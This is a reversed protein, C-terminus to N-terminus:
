VSRATRDFSHREDNSREECAHGSLTAMMSKEEQIAALGDPSTLTAYGELEEVTWNTPIPVTFLGDPHRYFGETGSKTEGSEQLPTTSGPTAAPECGDLVLLLSAVILLASCTRKM